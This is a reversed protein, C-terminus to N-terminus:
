GTFEPAVTIAAASPTPCANARPDYTITVQGDSNSNGGGLTLGTGDPTFGSGGGGGSGVQRFEPPLAPNTIVATGGGGGDYALEGGTLTFTAVSAPINIQVVPREV